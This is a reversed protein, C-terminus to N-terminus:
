LPDEQDSHAGVTRSAAFEVLARRPVRRSRGIKTFPLEGRGMLQYVAARSLGLFEAVEAVRMLGDAVMDANPDAVQAKM